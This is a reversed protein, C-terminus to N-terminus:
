HHSNAEGVSVPNVTRESIAVLIVEVTTMHAVMVAIRFLNSMDAARVLHALRFCPDAQYIPSLIAKGIIPANTTSQQGMLM